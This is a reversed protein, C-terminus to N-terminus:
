VEIYDTPLKYHKLTNYTIPVDIMMLYFNDLGDTVNRNTISNLFDVYMPKKNIETISYSETDCIKLGNMLLSSSYTIDYLLYGDKFKIIDSMDKNYSPRKESLSYKINAKRLVKEMGEHYACIVILPIKSDMISVRSYTYKTAVTTKDYADEFGKINSTAIDKLFASFTYTNSPIYYIVRKTENNYGIPLGKSDDVKYLMRLKDQNFYFISDAITISDLVSAMDIYDMPLEYKNCVISNDGTKYSIGAIKNKTITKIFRDSTVCSKGNIGGFRSIFIKKYCSVIQVTDVDTKIIPMLFLQNSISKRNGRLLKYKDDIFKPIDVTITYRKGDVASEYKATYTEVADESTSTDEVQLDYLYLPYKSNTRNAINNFINVIDKDLDYLKKSSVYKLDEWEPNVSDVPLSTPPIENDDMDAANLIESLTQGKFEKDLLDNQIKLIRSARAASISPGDDPEMSLDAIMERTRGDDIDELTDEESTKTNASQDIKEVLKQKIVERDPANDALKVPVINDIAVGQTKEIKDIIQTKIVKPSTYSDEDTEEVPTNDTVKKIIKLFTGYNISKDESFNMKVYKNEGLFLIDYGSFLNSLRGPDSMLLKYITSIINVDTNILWYNEKNLFDANFLPIIITKKVYSNYRKDKILRKILDIYTNMKRMRTFTCNKDFLSLYFSMDVFVNKGKYLDFTTFTYRIASCDQKVKNYHAILEKNTAIRENYFMKRFQNNNSADESLVVVKNEDLYISNEKNIGYYSIDDYEEDMNTTEYLMLSTGKNFDFKIGLVYRIISKYKDEIVGMMNKNMANNLEEVSNCKLITEKFKKMKDKNIKRKYKDEHTVKDREVKIGYLYSYIAYCLEKLNKNFNFNFMVKEFLGSIVIATAYKVSNVCKPNIQNIFYLSARFLCYYKYSFYITNDIKDPSSVSIKNNYEPAELRNFVEIEVPYYVSECFKNALSKLTENNLERSVFAVDREFGRYIIRGLRDENYLSFNDEETIYSSEKQIDIQTGEQKIYYMCNREMFYSNYYKNIFLNHRIIKKSAEYSPSLLIALGGEKKKTENFPLLFPRRSVRNNKMEDVFIM